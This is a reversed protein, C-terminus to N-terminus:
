SVALRQPECVSRWHLCEVWLGLYLNLRFPILPWWLIRVRFLASCKTDPVSELQVIDRLVPIVSSIDKWSVRSFRIQIWGCRLPGILGKLHVSLVGVISHSVSFFECAGWQAKSTWVCFAFLSSLFLSFDVHFADDAWHPRQPEYFSRWGRFSFCVWFLMVRRM